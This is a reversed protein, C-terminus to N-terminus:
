LDRTEVRKVPFVAGRHGRHLALQHQRWLRGLLGRQKNKPVRKPKVNRTPEDSLFVTEWSGSPTEKMQLFLKGHSLVTLSTMRPM